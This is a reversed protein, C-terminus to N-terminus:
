QFLKIQNECQPYQNRRDLRNRIRAAADKVTKKDLEDGPIMWPAFPIIQKASIVKQGILKRVSQPCIDLRRAAQEM